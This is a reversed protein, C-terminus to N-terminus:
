DLDQPYEQWAFPLLDLHSKNIQYGECVFHLLTSSSALCPLRYSDLLIVFSIGFDLLSTEAHTVSLGTVFLNSTQPCLKSVIIKTFNHSRDKLYQASFPSLDKSKLLLSSSHFIKMLKSLSAFSSM